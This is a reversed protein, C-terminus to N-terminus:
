EDPCLETADEIRVRCYAGALYDGFDQEFLQYTVDKEVDMNDTERLHKVIDKLLRVAETQVQYKNNGGEVLRDGYYIIANYVQHEEYEEISEIAMNVSAYRIEKSNWNTYVDGTSYNNVNTLGKAYNGVIDYLQIINM